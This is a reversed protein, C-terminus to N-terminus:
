KSQRISPIKENKFNQVSNKENPTEQTGNFASMLAKLSNLTITIFKVEKVMLANTM